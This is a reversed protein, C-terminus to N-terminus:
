LIILAQLIIFLNIFNLTVSFRGCQVRGHQRFREHYYKFKKEKEEGTFNQCTECAKKPKKNKLFIKIDEVSKKELSKNIIKKIIHIHTIYKTLILQIANFIIKQLIYPHIMQTMRYRVDNIMIKKM